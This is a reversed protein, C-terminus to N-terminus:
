DQFSKELPLKTDSSKIEVEEFHSTDGKETLQPVYPATSDHVENWDFVEFWPHKKIDEADGKLVMRSVNDLNEFPIAENGLRDPADCILKSMLNILDPTVPQDDPYELFKKWHVIKTRTIKGKSSSFPPYGYIMEFLIIGASWWDCSKDYGLGKLVEPAVYNNTGVVSYAQHKRSLPTTDLGDDVSQFIAAEKVEKKDKNSDWALGFDALKIHGRHDLM